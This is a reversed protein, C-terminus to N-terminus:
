KIKNNLKKITKANTHTRQGRRPLKYRFRYNKYTRISQHLDHYKLIEKKLDDNILCHNEVFQIIKNILKSNLQKIKTYPNLGISQCIKVTTKKGIGYIQSLGSIINYNENLNTKLLYM